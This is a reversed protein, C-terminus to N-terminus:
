LPLCSRRAPSKCSSISTINGPILPSATLVLRGSASISIALPTARQCAGTKMCFGWSASPRSVQSASSSGASGEALVTFEATEDIEKDDDATIFTGSKSFKIMRGVISAPSVEDLYRERYPRTDAAQAPKDKTVAPPHPKYEPLAPKLQNRKAVVQKATPTTHKIKTNM